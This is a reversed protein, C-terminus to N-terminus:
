KKVVAVVLLLMPLLFLLARQNLITHQAKTKKKKKGEGTETEGQEGGEM